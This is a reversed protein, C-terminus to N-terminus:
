VKTIEGNISRNAPVAYLLLMAFFAVTGYTMWFVNDTFGRLLLTVFCVFFIPRRLKIAHFADQVCMILVYILAILGNNMHINFFSNHCNGQYKTWAITTQIDVGFIVSIASSKMHTFYDKWIVTRSSNMGRNRFTESIVSSNIWLLIRDINIALISIAVFILSICAVKFDLKKRKFFLYALCVVLFSSAIIGGRGRSLLSMIWYFVAPWFMPKEQNFEALAYYLVLPYLMYVSVFNNSSSVYIQGWFGGTIFRFIVIGGNLLLVFLLSKYNFDKNFFLLAIFFQMYMLIFSTLSISGVLFYNALGTVTFIALFPVYPKCLFHQNHLLSVCTGFLLAFYWFLRTFMSTSQTQLALALFYLLGASTITISKARFSINM